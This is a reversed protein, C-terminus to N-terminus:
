AVRTKFKRAAVTLFFLMMIVLAAGEFVLVGPGSGKLMIGRIIVIFYRPPVIHSIGQLVAPMNKIAFIFGSLMVAPLLTTLQALMM